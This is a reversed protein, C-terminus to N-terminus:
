TQSVRELGDSAEPGYTGFSLKIGRQAPTLMSEPSLEMGKSNNDM